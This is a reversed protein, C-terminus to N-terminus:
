VLKLRSRSYHFLPITPEKLIHDKKSIAPMDFGTMKDTIRYGLVWKEM